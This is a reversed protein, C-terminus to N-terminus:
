RKTRFLSPKRWAEETANETTMKERCYEEPQSTLYIYEKNRM